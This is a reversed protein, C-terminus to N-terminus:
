SHSSFTTDADCWHALLLILPVKVGHPLGILLAGSKSCLARKCGMMCLGLEKREGSFRCARTLWSSLHVPLGFPLALPLAWALIGQMNSLTGINM